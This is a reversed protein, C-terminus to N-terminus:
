SPTSAEAILLACAVEYFTKNSSLIAHFFWYVLLSFAFILIQPIEKEMIMLIETAGLSWDLVANMVSHPIYAVLTIGKPNRFAGEINWFKM